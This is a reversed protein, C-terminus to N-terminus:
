RGARARAGDGRPSGRSRRRRPRSTRRARAGDAGPRRARGVVLLRLTEDVREARQQGGDGREDRVVEPAHQELDRLLMEFRDAVRGLERGRAVLGAPFSGLRSPRARSAVTREGLAVLLAAGDLPHEVASAGRYSRMFRTIESPSSRPHRLCVTASSSSGAPDSTRSRAHPVPSRALSTADCRSGRRDADVVRGAHEGGRVGLAGSTRPSARLKREAVAAEVADDAPERQAVEDLERGHEALDRAHRRRPPRKTARSAATGVFGTSRAPLVIQNRPATGSSPRASACSASAYEYRGSTWRTGGARRRHEGVREAFGAEGVRPVVREGAAGDEHERRRACSWWAPM